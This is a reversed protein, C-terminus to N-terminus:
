ENRPLCDWSALVEALGETLEGNRNLTAFTAGDAWM